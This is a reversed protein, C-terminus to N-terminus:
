SEDNESEIDDFKTIFDNYSKVRNIFNGNKLCVSFHRGPGDYTVFKVDNHRKIEDQERIFGPCLGHFINLGNQKFYQKSQKTFFLDKEFYRLFKVIISPPRGNHGTLGNRHIAVFDKRCLHEQNSGLAGNLTTIVSQFLNERNEGPSVTLGTLIAVPKRSYQDLNNFDSELNSIRKANENSKSTLKSVASEIKKTSSEQKTLVLRLLKITVSPDSFEELTDSSSIKEFLQDDSLKSVSDPKSRPM